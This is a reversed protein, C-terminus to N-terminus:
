SADFFDGQLISFKISELLMVVQSARELNTALMTTSEADVVITLYNGAEMQPVGMSEASKAFHENMALEPEAAGGKPVLGIVNSM